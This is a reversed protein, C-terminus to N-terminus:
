NVHTFKKKIIWLHSVTGTNMPLSGTATQGNQHASGDSGCACQHWVTWIRGSRASMKVSPGDPEGGWVADIFKILIRHDLVFSKKNKNEEWSM